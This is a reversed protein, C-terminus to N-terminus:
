FLVSRWNSWRSLQHLGVSSGRDHKGLREWLRSPWAERGGLFRSACKETMANWWLLRSGQPCPERRSEWGVCALGVGQRSGPRPTHYPQFAYGDTSIWWRGCGMGAM